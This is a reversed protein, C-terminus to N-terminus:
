KIAKGAFVEYQMATLSTAFAFADAKIGTFRRGEYSQDLPLEETEGYIDRIWARDLAWVRSAITNLVTLARESGALTLRDRGSLGTWIVADSPLQYQHRVIAWTWTQEALTAIAAQAEAQAPFDKGISM